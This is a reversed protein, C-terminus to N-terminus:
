HQWRRQKAEGQYFGSDFHRLRQSKATQFGYLIQKDDNKVHLNTIVSGKAKPFSMRHKWLQCYTQAQGLLKPQAMQLGHIGSKYPLFCLGQNRWSFIRVPTSKFGWNQNLLLLFVLIQRLRGTSQQHPDTWIPLQKATQRLSFLHCVTKWERSNILM